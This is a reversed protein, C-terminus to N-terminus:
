KKQKQSIKKIRERLKAATEYDETEVANNLKNNLDFMIEEKTRRKKYGEIVYKYMITIIFISYTDGDITNFVKDINVICFENDINQKLEEETIGDINKVFKEYDIDTMLGSMYIVKDVSNLKELLKDYMSEDNYDINNLYEELFTEYDEPEITECYFELYSNIINIMVDFQTSKPKRKNQSM